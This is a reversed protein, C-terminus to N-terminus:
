SSSKLFSRITVGSYFHSLTQSILRERSKMADSNENAKEDGQPPTELNVGAKLLLQNLFKQALLAKRLAEEFDRPSENLVSKTWRTYGEMDLGIMPRGLLNEVASRVEQDSISLGEKKGAQYLAIRKFTELDLVQNPLNSAEAPLLLKLLKKQKDFDRQKIKKGNVEGAYPSLMQAGTVISGAGWLGFAIVVTWIIARTNTRLLKLM